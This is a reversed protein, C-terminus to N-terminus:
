FYAHFYLSSIAILWRRLAYVVTPGNSDGNEPDLLFINAPKCLLFHLGRVVTEFLTFRKLITQVKTSFDRGSCSWFHVRQQSKSGVPLLQHRRKRHFHLANAHRKFVLLICAYCSVAPSMMNPAATSCAPTSTERFFLSRIIHSKTRGSRVAILGLQM